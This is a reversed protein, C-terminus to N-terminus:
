IVRAVREIEERVLKEVLTPLNNDLWEQLMPRLMEEAMEDLSKKSRAAFAESLEEFAAAVQRSTKESVLAPRSAMEASEPSSTSEIETAPPAASEVARQQEAALEPRLSAGAPSIAQRPPIAPTEEKAATSDTAETEAPAHWDAVPEASKRVAEPAHRSSESRTFDIRTFGRGSSAPIDLEAAKDDSGADEPASAAETEARGAEPPPTMSGPGATSRLESRFVDAAAPATEETGGSSETFSEAPKRGSDNDEIIRRISALIEEMSPERQANSATAM